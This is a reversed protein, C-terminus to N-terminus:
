SNPAQYGQPVTQAAPEDPMVIWAVIYGIIGPLIGSFFTVVLWLVRV